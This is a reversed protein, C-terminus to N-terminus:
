RPSARRPPASEWHEDPDHLYVIDLRDTAWANSHGRSRACSATAASIWVRRRDARVAFGDDLRDATEASDVLLRGVKSLLPISHRDTLELARGLRRESLGLGYHPSHRM